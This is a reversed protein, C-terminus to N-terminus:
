LNKEWSLFLINGNPLMQADHHAIHNENSYEFSWEVTGNKDLLSILGGFGGLTLEPNESELMALLRGDNLLFPDNGLRKGNLNWEHLKDTTKDMLYVSNASADNVLILGDYVKKGNFVELSEKIPFNITNIPAKDDSNCPALGILLILYTFGLDKRKCNKM